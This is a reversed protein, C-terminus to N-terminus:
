SKQALLYLHDSFKDAVFRNILREAKRVARVPFPNFSRTPKLGLTQGLKNSSLLQREYRCVVPQHLGPQPVPKGSRTRRERIFERLAESIGSDDVRRALKLAMDETAGRAWDKEADFPVVRSRSRHSSPQNLNPDRIRGDRAMSTQQPFEKLV